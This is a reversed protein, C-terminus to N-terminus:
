CLQQLDWVFEWDTPPWKSWPQPMHGFDRKLASCFSCSPVKRKDARQLSHLQHLKEEGRSWFRHSLFPKWMTKVCKNGQNGQTVQTKPTEKRLRPKFSRWRLHSHGYIVLSEARIQLRMSAAWHTHNVPRSIWPSGLPSEWTGFQTYLSSLHYLYLQLAPTHVIKWYKECFRIIGLQFINLHMAPFTLNCSVGTCSQCCDGALKASIRQVIKCAM